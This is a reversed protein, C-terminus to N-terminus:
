YFIYIVSDYKFLIVGKYILQYYKLLLHISANTGVVGAYSSSCVSGSGSGNKISFTLYLFM